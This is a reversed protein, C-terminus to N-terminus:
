DASLCRLEDDSSGEGLQFAAPDYERFRATGGSIGVVIGENDHHDLSDDCILVQKPGTKSARCETEKQMRGAYSTLEGLPESGDFKQKYVEVGGAQELDETLDGPCFLLELTDRDAFLGNGIVQLVFRAGSEAVYRNGGSTEILRVLESIHQTCELRQARRNAHTIMVGVMGALTSIIAIVVLIEILTFGQQTHKHDRM